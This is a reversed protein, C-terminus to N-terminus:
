LCDVAAVRPAPASAPSPRVIKIDVVEGRANKVEAATRMDFRSGLDRWILRTNRHRFMSVIMFGGPDLVPLYRGVFAAPQDVYYLVENLVVVDFRASTRWTACDAVEFDALAHRARAGEIATPSVDIGRYHALADPAILDLLRGEGCGIDLVRPPSPLSRLYGAIVAYRPLEETSALFDWHGHSYQQEWHEVPVPRGRGRAALVLEYYALHLARLAPEIGDRVRRRLGRPTGSFGDM